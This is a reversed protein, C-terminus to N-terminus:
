LKLERRFSTIASQPAGDSDNRHDEDNETNPTPYFLMCPAIDSAVRSVVHDSSSTPFPPQFLITSDLKVLVVTTALIGERIFYTARVIRFM